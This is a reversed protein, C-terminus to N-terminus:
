SAAPEFGAPGVVQFCLSTFSECASRMKLFFHHYGGTTTRIILPCHFRGPILFAAPRESEEFVARRIEEAMPSILRIPADFLHVPLARHVGKLRRIPFGRIALESFPKAVQLSHVRCVAVHREGHQEFFILGRAGLNGVRRLNTFPTPDRFKALQKGVRHLGEHSANVVGVNRSPNAKNALAFPGRGAVLEAGERTRQKVEGHGVGDDRFVGEIRLQALDCVCLEKFETLLFVIKLRTSNGVLNLFEALEDLQPSFLVEDKWREIEAETTTPGVCKM